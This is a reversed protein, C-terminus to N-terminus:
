ILPALYIGIISSTSDSKEYSFFPPGTPSSGGVCPNETGQELVRKKILIMLKCKTM